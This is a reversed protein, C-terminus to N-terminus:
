LGRSLVEVFPRTLVGSVLVKQVVDDSVDIGYDVRLVVCVGKHTMGAARLTRMRTLLAKQRKHLKGRRRHRESQEDDAWFRITRNTVVIGREALVRRIENTPMRGFQERAYAVAQPRTLPDALATM